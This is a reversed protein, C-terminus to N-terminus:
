TAKRRKGFGILGILATGFLWAAAPIPVPSVSFAVEGLSAQNASGKDDPYAGLIDFRVYRADTLAALSLVDAFYDTDRPNNTLSFTGVLTNVAFLSDLSTYINLRSVGTADENWIAVRDLSYVGGLDFDVLGSTVGSSAFWEKDVAILSHSPTGGIYTDFDTIGSTYGSSLGSQDISNGIDVNADRDGLTNNIINTAGLITSANAAAPAFLTVFLACAIGIRM